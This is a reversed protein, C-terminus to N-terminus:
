DKKDCTDGSTLKAASLITEGYHDVFDRLSLRFSELSFGHRWLEPNEVIKDKWFRFSQDFSDQSEQHSMDVVLVLKGAVGRTNSPSWGILFPGNEGFKAGQAKADAIASDAGYLDYHDLMFDCDDKKAEAADPAELPWVTLMQDSVPVSNPIDRQRALHTVFSACARKLRERTVSTPKARFAFVGYAGINPPPIDSGKLFARVPVLRNQLGVPPPHSDAPTPPPAPPPAADPISPSETEPRPARSLHHRVPICKGSSLVQGPPCPAAMTTSTSITVCLIAAALWARRSIM